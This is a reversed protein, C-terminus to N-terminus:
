ELFRNRERASPIRCHERKGFWKYRNRAIINYFYDRIPRPVFLFIMCMKWLGDLKGCIKLAATSKTYVKNNEIYIMSELNQLTSNNEVLKQGINSQISAFKFYEKSDRKMIFQVSQNCFHCVGDFLIIASM